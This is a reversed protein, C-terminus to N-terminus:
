QKGNQNKIQAPGFATKPATPVSTFPDLKLTAFFGLGHKFDLNFVLQSLSLFPCLLLSFTHVLRALFSTWTDRMRNAKMEGLLEAQAEEYM